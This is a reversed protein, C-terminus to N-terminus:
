GRGAYISDRSDDVNPNQPHGSAWADLKRQWEDNSLTEPEAAHGNGGGMSRVLKEVLEQKEREDMADILRELQQADEQTM